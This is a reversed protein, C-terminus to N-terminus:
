WDRIGTLKANSYKKLKVEKRLGKLSQFPGNAAFLNVLWAPLAGGPDVQLTYEVQILGKEVPTLKWIGMSRQIRVIGKKEPVYKPLNETHMMVVKTQPDQIMTIRIIFDRNTLPWPLAAEAYYILDTPSFQKLLKPNKAGYVWEETNSVDMLVMALQSMSAEVNGVTKVAKFPSHEPLSTFVKIGERDINLKWEHQAHSNAWLLITFGITLLCKMQHM